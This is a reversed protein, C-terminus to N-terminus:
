RRSGPLRVTRKLLPVFLLTSTRRAGLKAYSRISRQNTRSITTLGETFGRDSLLEARRTISFTHLGAGRHQKFVYDDFFYAQGPGVQVTHNIRANAVSVVAAHCYGAPRGDPDLIVWGLEGADELRDILIRYKRKTLERKHTTKLGALAQADAKVLAGAGAGNVTSGVLPFSYTYLVEVRQKKALKTLRDRLAPRSREESM